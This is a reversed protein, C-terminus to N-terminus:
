SWLKKVNTEFMDLVKKHNNVRKTFEAFTFDEQKSIAEFSSILAERCKNIIDYNLDKYIDQNFLPKQMKSKYNNDLDKFYRDNDKFHYGYELFVEKIERLSRRGCNPFRSLESLTLKNAFIDQITINNNKLINSTRVSFSMDDIDMNQINM